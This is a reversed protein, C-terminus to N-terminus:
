GGLVSETRQPFQRDSVAGNISLLWLPTEMTEGIDGPIPGVHEM